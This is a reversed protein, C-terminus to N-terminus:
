LALMLVMLNYVLCVCFKSLPCLCSVFGDNSTSCIALTPLEMNTSSDRLETFVSRLRSFVFSLVRVCCCSLLHDIFRACVCFAGEDGDV